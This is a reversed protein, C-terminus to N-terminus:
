CTRTGPGKFKWLSVWNKFDLLQDTVDNDATVARRAPKEGLPKTSNLMDFLTDLKDTFEATAKAEPELQHTGIQTSIGAAVSHSLVQLKM